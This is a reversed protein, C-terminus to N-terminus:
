VFVGSFIIQLLKTSMKFRIRPIKYTMFHVPDSYRCGFQGRGFTIYAVPGGKHKAIISFDKILYEYRM